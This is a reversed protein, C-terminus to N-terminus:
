KGLGMLERIREMTDDAIQRREEGLAQMNAIGHAMMAWARWLCEEDSRDRADDPYIIVQQSYGGNPQEVGSILILVDAAGETATDIEDRTFQGVEAKFSYKIRWHNSVQGGVRPRVGRM